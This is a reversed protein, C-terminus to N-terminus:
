CISNMVRWVAYCAYNFITSFIAYLVEPFIRKMRYLYLFTRYSSLNSSILITSLSLVWNNQFFSTDDSLSVADGRWNMSKGECFQMFPCWRCSTHYIWSISFLPLCSNFCRRLIELYCWPIAVRQFSTRAYSSICLRKTWLNESMKEGFGISHYRTTVSISYFSISFYWSRM